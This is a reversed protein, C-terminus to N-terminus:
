PRNRATGATTAQRYQGLSFQTRQSASPRKMRAPTVSKRSPQTARAQDCCDAM